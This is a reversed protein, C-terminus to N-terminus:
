GLKRKITGPLLYVNVREESFCPKPIHEAGSVSIIDVEYGSEVLRAVGSVVAPLAGIHPILSIFAVRRQTQRSTKKSSM